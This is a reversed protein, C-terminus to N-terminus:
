AANRPKKKLADLQLKLDANEQLLAEREALQPQVVDRLHRAVRRMTASPLTLHHWDLVQRAFDDITSDM